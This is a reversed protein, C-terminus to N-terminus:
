PRAPGSPQPQGAGSTNRPRPPRCSCIAKRRPSRVPTLVDLLGCWRLVGVLCWYLCWYLCWRLCWCMVLVSFPAWVHDPCLPRTCTVSNYHSLTGHAPPPLTLHGARLGGQDRPRDPAGRGWFIGCGGPRIFDAAPGTADGECVFAHSCQRQVIGGSHRRPSSHIFTPRQKTEPRMWVPPRPAGEPVKRHVAHLAVAAAQWEASSM